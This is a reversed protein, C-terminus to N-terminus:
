GNQSALSGYVHCLLDTLLDDREDASSGEIEEVAGAVTKPDPTAKREVGM